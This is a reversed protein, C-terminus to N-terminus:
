ALRAHNDEYSTVKLVAAVFESPPLYDHEMVYHYILAPARYICGTGTVDIEACGLHMTKGDEITIVWGRSGNCFECSHVGKYRRSPSKCLTHLAEKFEQTSAGTSYAHAGDLWGVYLTPMRNLFCVYSAQDYVERFACGDEELSLDPHYM